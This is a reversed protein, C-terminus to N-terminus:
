HCSKSYTLERATSEEVTPQATVINSTTVLSGTFLRYNISYPMVKLVSQIVSMDPMTIKVIATGVNTNSSYEAYKSLDVFEDGVMIGVPPTIEEGTYVQNEIPAVIDDTLEDETVKIHFTLKLDNGIDYDYSITDIKNWIIYDGDIKM